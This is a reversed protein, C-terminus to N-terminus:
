SIAKDRHVDSENAFYTEFGSVPKGQHWATVLTLTQMPVAEAHLNDHLAWDIFLRPPEDIVTLDVVGPCGQM